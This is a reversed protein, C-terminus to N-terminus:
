DDNNEYFSLYTKRIYDVLRVNDKNIDITKMDNPEVRWEYIAREDVWLYERLTDDRVILGYPISIQIITEMNLKWWWIFFLQSTSWTNRSTRLWWKLVSIWIHTLSKWLTRQGWWLYTPLENQVGWAYARKAWTLRFIGNSQLLIFGESLWHLEM